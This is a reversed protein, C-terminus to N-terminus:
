CDAAGYATCRWRYIVESDSYGIIGECLDPIDHVLQADVPSCFGLAKM